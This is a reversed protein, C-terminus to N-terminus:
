NGKGGHFSFENTLNLSKKFFVYTKFQSISLLYGKSIKAGKKLVGNKLVMKQSQKAKVWQPSEEAKGHPKKANIYSFRKMM